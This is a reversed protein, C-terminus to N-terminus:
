SLCKAVHFLPCHVCFFSLSLDGFVKQIWWPDMSATNWFLRDISNNLWLLTDTVDIATIAAKVWNALSMASCCGALSPRGCLFATMWWECAAATLSVARSATPTARWVKVPPSPDRVMRQMLLLAVCKSHSHSPPSPLMFTQGPRCVGKRQWRRHEGVAFYSLCRLILCPHCAHFSLSWGLNDAVHYRILVRYSHM